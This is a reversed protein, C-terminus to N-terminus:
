RMSLVAMVASAALAGSIAFQASLILETPIISEILGGLVLVRVPEGAGPAEDRGSVYVFSYVTLFTKRAGTLESGNTTAQVSRAGFPCM